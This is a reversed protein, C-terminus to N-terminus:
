KIKLDEKGYFFDKLGLKPNYALANITFDRRALDEKINTVFKVSKPKRNNLYEGDTRYTTVEFPTNNIIVTITGHKVGTPVTKEFLLKIENPLANTTIDYDHPTKRLLNDRVCGGVIFAEFNNDYFKNLILKVDNPLNM